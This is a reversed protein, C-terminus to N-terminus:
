RVTRLIGARTRLFLQTGVTNRDHRYRRSNDPGRHTKGAFRFIWERMNDELEM